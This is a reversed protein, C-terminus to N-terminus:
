RKSCNSIHWTKLYAQQIDTGMKPRPYEHHQHATGKPFCDAFSVHGCSSHQAMKRPCPSLSWHLSHWTEQSHTTCALPNWSRRSANPYVCGLRRALQASPVEQPTHLGQHHRHTRGIPQCSTAANMHTATPLGLLRPWGCRGKPFHHCDRCSDRAQAPASPAEKAEPQTKEGCPSEGNPARSM